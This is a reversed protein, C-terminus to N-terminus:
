KASMEPFAKTIDDYHQEVFTLNAPSVMKLMDPPYEQFMGAKKMGVVMGAQLLSLSGVAFERPTLGNKALIAVADPYKQIRQAIQDLSENAASSSDKLEPHSKALDTLGHMAGSLKQVKDMTLSYKLLEQEDATQAGAKTRAQAAASGAVLTLAALLGAARHMFATM